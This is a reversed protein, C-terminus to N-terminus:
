KKFNEIAVKWDTGRYIEKGGKDLVIYYPVTRVRLDIAAKDSTGLPLWMRKMGEITDRKIYRQWAMSDADAYLEIIRGKGKKQALYKLTDAPLPDGSTRNDIFAM